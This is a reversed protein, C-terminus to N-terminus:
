SSYSRRGHCDDNDRPAAQLGQSAHRRQYRQRYAREALPPDAARIDALATGGFAPLLHRRLVYEYLDVTKPRLEPRENIWSEAYDRFEVAGADPDLWQDSLIEVETKALWRDADRKTAFTSPAPRDIGDPGPYRAQWRKSSLQRVRGFRRRGPM